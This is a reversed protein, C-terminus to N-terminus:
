PAFCMMVARSFVDADGASFWVVESPSPSIVQCVCHIHVSVSMYFFIHFHKTLLKRQSKGKQETERLRGGEATYCVGGHRQVDDSDCQVHTLLTCMQLLTKMWINGLDYQIDM